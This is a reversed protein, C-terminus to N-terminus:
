GIREPHTYVNMRGERVFGALTVGAGAALDIALTSPASVAVLVPIRAILAKLVIEYSLRGSVCLMREDLPWRGAWWSAGIVKDVANHRGVDEAVREIAGHADFLAAAHLGGTREFVDQVERMRAPCQAVVAAPVSFASRVSLGDALLSDVHQRGCLGCSANTTVARAAAAVRGAAHAALAVEIVNHQLVGRAHGPAMSEIDGADVAIREGLLFGATLDRDAGPTRMIVAFPAGNISVQLPEEVAASDSAESRGEHAVKLVQVPRAPRDDIDGARTRAGRVRLQAM